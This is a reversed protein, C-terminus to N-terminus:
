LEEKPVFWDCKDTKGYLTVLDCGLDLTSCKNCILKEEKLKNEMHINVFMDFLVGIIFGVCISIIIALIM